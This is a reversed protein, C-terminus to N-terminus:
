PLAQWIYNYNEENVMYPVLHTKCHKDGLSFQRYYTLCFIKCFSRVNFGM